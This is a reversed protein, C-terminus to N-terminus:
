SMPVSEESERSKARRDCKETCAVGGVVDVKLKKYAFRGVEACLYSCGLWIFYVQWATWVPPSAEALALGLTINIMALLLATRGGLRHVIEWLRRKLTKSGDAEPKPHRSFDSLYTM